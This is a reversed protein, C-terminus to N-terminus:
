SSPLDDPLPVERPSAGREQDWSEFAQADRGQHEGHGGLALLILPESGANVLQRRVSPAVRILEGEALEEEVGEIGITLAGSLVLFVEEQHEHLHIRSRQGPLMVMENMGFSTVGLQRRLPVFREPAEPEIRARSTGESLEAM